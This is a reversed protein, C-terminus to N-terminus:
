ADAAPSPIAFRKGHFVEFHAFPETGDAIWRAVAGTHLAALTIASHSTAVFAGPSSESQAYIPVIDPTLIRLGGWARVLRVRSLLPFLRVARRAMAAMASLTVGSDLGVDEKTDGIQVTGEATQRVQATPLDLFPRVREGILVQGRQPAVPASLGLMPALRRCGLGAAIVVKEAEFTKGKASLRFGGGSLPVVGDVAGGSLLRGGRRLFASQLARCLKLPNVHGDEPCFTGGVVEPGIAPIRAALAAHDMVAFPYDGDLAERMREFTAVRTALDKESLCLYLGGGQQLDLGIGTEDELEAAFAPWARAATRSWRAYAPNQPGKGQVWVLGFNAVSARPEAEGADLIAVQRGLRLLGYGIALGTAGGGVIAIETRNASVVMSM